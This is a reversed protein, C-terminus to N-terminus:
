EIKINNNIWKLIPNTGFSEVKEGLEPQHHRINYINTKLTYIEVSLENRMRIVMTMDPHSVHNLLWESYENFKAQKEDLEKQLAQMRPLQKPKPPM